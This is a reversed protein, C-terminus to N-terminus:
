LTRKLKLETLTDLLEKEVDHGSLPYTSIIKTLWSSCVIYVGDIPKQGLKTHAYPNSFVVVPNIFTKKHIILELYESLAGAQAKARRLFNTEFLKGNCTIQKGDYGIEGKHNKVEVLFNGSPGIVVFDINDKRGPLKIDWFVTFSDDLKKLEEAVKDEGRLGSAFSYLSHEEKRFQWYIFWLIPGFVSACAIFGPLSLFKFKPNLPLYIFIGAIFFLWVLAAYKSVNKSWVLYKSRAGYFKAM